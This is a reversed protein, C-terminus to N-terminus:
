DTVDPFPCEWEDLHDDDDPVQDDLHPAKYGVYAAAIQDV